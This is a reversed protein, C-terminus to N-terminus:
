SRADGLGTADQVSTPSTIQVVCGLADLVILTKGLQATAKGSELEILFRVGIGAAAALQQQTLGQSVRTNRIITGVDEPSMAFFRGSRSYKLM